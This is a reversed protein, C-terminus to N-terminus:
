IFNLNNYINITTHKSQELEQTRVVYAYKENSLKGVNIADVTALEYGVVENATNSTGATTAFNANQAQQAFSATTAFSSSIAISSSIAFSATGFLSGSFSGTFSGTNYSSTFANFSSTTVLSGTDINQIPLNTLGSGDGTFSGTFSGTLNVNIQKGQILKLAM